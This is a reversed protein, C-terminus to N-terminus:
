SLTLSGRKRDRYIDIGLIRKTAGLHKMEFESQLARTLKNIEDKYKCAILMDDVYILLYIYLNEQLDKFYVCHDFNCRNYSNKLMFEDFRKYWQRPSQKLGYLSRQLLCVKHENGKEVFGM